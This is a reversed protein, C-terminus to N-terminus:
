HIMVKYVKKTSNCVYPERLYGYMRMKGGGTICMIEKTQNTYFGSTPPNWRGAGLKSSLLRNKVPDNSGRQRLDMDRVFRTYRKRTYVEPINIHIM